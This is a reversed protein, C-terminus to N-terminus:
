RCFKKGGRVQREGTDMEPLMERRCFGRKRRGWCKLKLMMIICNLFHHWFYIGTKFLLIFYSEKM